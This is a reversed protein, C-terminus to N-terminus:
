AAPQHSYAQAHDMAAQIGAQAAAKLADDGEKCLDLIDADPDLTELWEKLAAKLAM